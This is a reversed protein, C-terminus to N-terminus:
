SIYMYVYMFYKIEVHFSMNFAWLYVLKLLEMDCNAETITTPFCGSSIISM